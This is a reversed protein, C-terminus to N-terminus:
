PQRAGGSFIRGSRALLWGLGVLIVGFALFAMDWALQHPGSRVHHIGLLQHDVLGEVLNFIGWGVLMWGWLVRSGWVQRRAETVRSYLIGLGVLVAIWTVTLGDGFTNMRLGAVTDIPYISSFMHHWQFVQHLFIGDFFGGLGIGLVIGPLQIPLALDTSSERPHAM